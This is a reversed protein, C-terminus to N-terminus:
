EIETMKEGKFCKVAQGRQLQDHQQWLRHTRQQQLSQNQQWMRVQLQQLALKRNRHQSRESQAVVSIGTPTHTLRVASETKNVHQGGPGQARMVEYVLDSSKIQHPQPMDAMLQCAVFWNKRKHRPRLPSQCIWQLSGQWKQCFNEGDDGTVSLIVSQYGNKLEGGYAALIDTDLNQETAAKMVIPLLRALFLECEAPGRGTSFHLYTQKTM